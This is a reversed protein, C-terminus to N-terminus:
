FTLVFIWIQLSLFNFIRFCLRCEHYFRCVPSAQLGRLQVSLLVSSTLFLCVPDLSKWVFICVSGTFSFSAWHGTRVQCIFVQVQLFTRKCVNKGGRTKAPITLVCGCAPDTLDVEKKSRSGAPPGCTRCDSDEARMEEGAARRVRLTKQLM